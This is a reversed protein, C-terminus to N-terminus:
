ETSTFKALINQEGEAIQALNQAMQRVDELRASMEETSASVEEAAAANKESVSAVVGMLEGVDHSFAQMQSVSKAVAGLRSRNEEVSACIERLAAGAQGALESGSRVSQLSAQMARELEQIGGQVTKM